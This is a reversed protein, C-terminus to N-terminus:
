TPGRTGGPGCPLPLVDPYLLARVPRTGDLSVDVTAPISCAIASSVVACRPHIWRYGPMWGVVFRRGTWGRSATRRYRVARATHVPDGRPRGLLRRMRSPMRCLDLAWPPGSQGSVADRDRVGSPARRDDLAPEHDCDMRLARVAVHEVPQQLRAASVRMGQGAAPLRRDVSSRLGFDIFSQPRTRALELGRQCARRRPNRSRAAFPARKASRCCASRPGARCVAGSRLIKGSQCWSDGRDAATVVPGDELTPRAVNLSLV